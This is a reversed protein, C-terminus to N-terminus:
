HDKLLRQKADMAEDFAGNTVRGLQIAADYIKMAYDKQDYFEYIKALAVYSRSVLAKDIPDPVYIGRAAAIQQNDAIRLVNEYATKAEILKRNQAEPETITEASLSAVRGISYFVRPETPNAKQLIKLDAEAQAFNKADIAKQIELLKNTVPNDIVIATDPKNKREDRAAIARKRAEANQELRGAEKAADLSLIMERMSSAIDFGSDETGKLQDAFYFALVSGKEYDESLRLATEDALSAKFKELEATIAKKEEPTKAATLKGRAQRTALASRSFEIQRADAAAVMSRTVALFVDPSVDPNAKRREDLLAKVGDKVTLVDKSNTLTLADIIFQLFARRAESYGLNTDPPVIVYYDDHINLFSINGVPALLEPVIFFRREHEVIETKQLTTQKSKQAQTKVKEVYTTQPRTHLYDLLDAVMEKASPKLTADTEQQYLKLYGDLHSSIDSRRYFERVLPAFDLVDLLTGPLDNTIVPDLLQPPPSLTYAMSMFPAVVDADNGKPHRKKYQTVFSVVKQRLDAPANAMDAQLTQRFKAGTASLTTNILKDSGSNALELTALVVMLRKDPEIKVGYNSLDMTATNIQASACLAFVSIFVATIVARM